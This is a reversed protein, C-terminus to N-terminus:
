LRTAMRWRRRWEMISSKRSSSMAFIDTKATIFSFDDRSNFARTFIAKGDLNLVSAGELLDQYLTKVGYERINAPLHTRQGRAITKLLYELRKTAVHRTITMLQLAEGSVDSWGDRHWGSLLPDSLFLSM